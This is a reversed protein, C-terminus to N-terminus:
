GANYKAKQRNFEEESLRGEVVARNLNAIPKLYEFEEKSLSQQESCIPCYKLYISRYPFVPIFFLTFWLSIKDLLWYDENSCRGCRIKDLPGEHVVKQHDFGFLVIM